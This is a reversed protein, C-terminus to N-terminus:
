LSMMVGIMCSKLHLSIAFNCLPWKCLRTKEASPHGQILTNSYNTHAMEVISAFNKSGEIKHIFKVHNTILQVDFTHCHTSGFGGEWHM